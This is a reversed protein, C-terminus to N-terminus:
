QRVALVNYSSGHQDLMRISQVAGKDDVECLTTGVGHESLANQFVHALDRNNFTVFGPLGGRAAPNQTTFRLTDGKVRMLMMAAEIQPHNNLTLVHEAVDFEQKTNLLIAFKKGQASERALTASVMNFQSLIQDRMGSMNRM